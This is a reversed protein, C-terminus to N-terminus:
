KKTIILVKIQGFKKRTILRVVPRLIASLAVGLARSKVFRAVHKNPIDYLAFDFTSLLTRLEDYNESLTGPENWLQLVVLKGGTPLDKTLHRIYALHDQLSGTRSFPYFEFATILDAEFGQGVDTPDIGDCSFACSSFRGSAFVVADESIDIGTVKAGPFASKIADTTFGLGCGVDCIATPSFGDLLEKVMAVRFRPNTDNHANIQAREADNTMRMIRYSGFDNRPDLKSVDSEARYNAEISRLNEPKWWDDNNM